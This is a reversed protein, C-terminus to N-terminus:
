AIKFFGERWGHLFTKKTAASELRRASAIRLLFRWAEDFIVHLVCPDLRLKTV